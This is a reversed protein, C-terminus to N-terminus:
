PLGAHGAVARPRNPHLHRFRTGRVPFSSDVFLHSRGVVEAAQRSPLMGLRTVNELVLLRGVSKAHPDEVGGIGGDFLFLGRHERHAEFYDALGDFTIAYNTWKHIRGGFTITPEAFKVHTEPSFAFPNLIPERGYEEKVYAFLKPSTVLVTEAHDMYYRVDDLYKGVAGRKGMETLELDKRAIFDFVIRHRRAAKGWSPQFIQRCSPRLRRARYARRLRQLAGHPILHLDRHSRALNDPGCTMYYRDTFIIFCAEHGAATWNASSAAPGAHRSREHDASIGQPPNNCVIYHIMALLLRLLSKSTEEVSFAVEDAIMPNRRTANRLLSVTELVSSGTGLFM